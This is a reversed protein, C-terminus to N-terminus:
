QYPARLNAPSSEPFFANYTPTAASVVPAAGLLRIWNPNTFGREKKAYNALAGAQETGMKIVGEKGLQRLIENQTDPYHDVYMNRTDSLASDYLTQHIDPTTQKNSFQRFRPDRVPNVGAFSDYDTLVDIDDAMGRGRARMIEEPSQMASGIGFVRRTAPNERQVDLYQRLQPIHADQVGGRAMLQQIAAESQEPTYKPKAALKVAQSRAKSLMPAIFSEAIAAFNPM